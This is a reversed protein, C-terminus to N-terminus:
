GCGLVTVMTSIGQLSCSSPVLLGKLVDSFVVQKAETEGGVVQPGSPSAHCWPSCRSGWFTRKSEHVVGLQFDGDVVFSLVTLHNLLLWLM